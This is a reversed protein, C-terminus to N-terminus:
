LEWEPLHYPEVISFPPEHEAPKRALVSVLDLVKFLLNHHVLLVHLSKSMVRLRRCSSVAALIDWAGYQKLITSLETTIQQCHDQTFEISLSVNQGWIRNRQCLYCRATSYSQSMSFFDSVLLILPGSLCGVTTLKLTDLKRAINACATASDTLTDVLELDCAYQDTNQLLGSM